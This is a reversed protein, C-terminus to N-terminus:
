INQAATIYNWFISSEMAVATLVDFEAYYLLESGGQGTYDLLFLTQWLIVLMIVTEKKKM